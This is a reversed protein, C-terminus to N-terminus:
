RPEGVSSIVSERCLSALLRGAHTFFPRLFELQATVLLAPVAARRLLLLLM